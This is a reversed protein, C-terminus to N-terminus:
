PGQLASGEICGGFGYLRVTKEIVPVAWDELEPSLVLREILREVDVHIDFGCGINTRYAVARLERENEYKSRKIFVNGYRAESSYEDEEEPRFYGVPIIRIPTDCAGLCSALSRITSQIAVGNKPAFKQWMELSESKDLYWCNICVDTNRQRVMTAATTEADRRGTGEPMLRPLEKKIEELALPPLEGESKDEMTCLPSFHLSTTWLAVFLRELPMYRWIVEDPSVFVVNVNGHTWITSDEPIGESAPNLDVIRLIQHRNPLCGSELLALMDGVFKQDAENLEGLNKRLRDLKTPIDIGEM